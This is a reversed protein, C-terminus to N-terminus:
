GQSALLLEELRDWMENTGYEMGSNVMAELLELSEFSSTVVVRTKGEAITEFVYSDTGSQGAMPEFEFTMVLRKPPDIVLYEGRFAFENGDADRQIYRWGGNVRVDMTDVITTTNRLGWWRPILDRDTYIRWLREPSADFVRSIVVTKAARNVDAPTSKNM